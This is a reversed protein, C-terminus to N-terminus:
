VTVDSWFLVTIASLLITFDDAKSVTELYPILESGQKGIPQLDFARQGDAAWFSLPAVSAITGNTGGAIFANVLAEVRQRPNEKAQYRINGKDDKVTYILLNKDHRMEIMGFTQNKSAHVLASSRSGRKESQPVIQFLDASQKERKDAHDVYITNAKLLSFKERATFLAKGNADTIHLRHSTDFPSIALPYAFVPM